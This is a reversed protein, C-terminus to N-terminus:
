CYYCVHKQLTVPLLLSCERGDLEECQFTNKIANVVTDSWVTMQLIRKRFAEM